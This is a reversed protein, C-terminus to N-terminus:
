FRADINLTIVHDEFDRSDDNSSNDRYRYQLRVDSQFAFVHKFIVTAGPSVMTDHRDDSGTFLGPDRYYRDSLSINAGAVVGDSVPTYYAFDSGYEIYRGPEAEASVSVPIGGEIDSWRVWPSLIFVDSGGFIHPVGWRASAQAYWGSDATFHEDYDRFGVKLRVVQNAGGTVGEFTLSGAGEVYFLSHDFHSVAVGLAPHV